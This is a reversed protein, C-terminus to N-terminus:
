PRAGLNKRLAEFREAMDDRLLDVATHITQLLDATRHNFEDQM